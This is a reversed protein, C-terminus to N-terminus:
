STHVSLRPIPVVELCNVSSKHPNERGGSPNTCRQALGDPPELGLHRSRRLALARTAACPPRNPPISSTSALWLSRNIPPWIPSFGRSVRLFRRRRSPDSGADNALRQPRAKREGENLEG